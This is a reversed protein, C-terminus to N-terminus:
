EEFRKLLWYALWVLAIIVGWVLAVDLITYQMIPKTLLNM